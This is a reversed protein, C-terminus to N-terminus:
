VALEALVHAAVFQAEAIVRRADIPRQEESAAKAPQPESATLLTDIEGVAASMADRARQLATRNRDSLVRGEKERREHLGKTNRVLEAARYNVMDAQGVVTEPSPIPVFTPQVPVADGITLAGDAGAAYPVRYYVPGVNYDGMHFCAIAYDDFTAVVYAYGLSRDFPTAGEAALRLARNLGEIREEYSGPLAGIFVDKGETGVAKIALTRTNEGAGVLVPSVEIPWAKKIRRIRKGDVEDYASDTVKFGWSYEQLGEAFKVSEYADRGWSTALNFKGKFVAGEPTVEIVGKGIPKHWDHHWVMPLEQGDTFATPEVVDGDKDVIGFTSVIASLLGSEDDPSIATKFTKLEM